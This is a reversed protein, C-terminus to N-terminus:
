QQRGQWLKELKGAIGRARQRPLPNNDGHRPANIRRNDRRQRRGAPGFYDADGQLKVIVTGGGPAFPGTTSAIINAIGAGHSIPQANGM